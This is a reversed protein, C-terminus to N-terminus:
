GVPFALTVRLGGEPRNALTIDGGHARIAARAVALGLGTGGTDRNRSTELRVFPAFVKEHDAEAIGPGDDDVVVHIHGDTRRLGVRAAAGYKLANEIVNAVARKLALPRVGAVLSDPGDYSGGLDEAMDQVLKAVDVPRRDERAADDRAFALTAAIMHEMEDLDSLMKARQEDDDVFEARLKMRTIPTRLDHSIAALMQTRDDVFRRIRGQMVNFAQAAARVENPGREALPPANVDMGLREAAAALAALPRTARRVAWLAAVIIVVLAGVLPFVFRPQWLSDGHEIPAYVNLWSDDALRVSVQLAPGGVFPGLGFGGSGFGHGRREGMPGPGGPMPGGPLPPPPPLPALIVRVERGDLEKALKRAIVSPLGPAPEPEPVLPMVGWGARLGPTDLRRVVHRRGEPNTDELLNVLTAIREAAYRGRMASLAEGRNGVFLALATGLVVAVALVLVLATRGMLSAPALRM